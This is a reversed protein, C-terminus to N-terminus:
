SGARAARSLRESVWGRAVLANLFREYGDQLLDQEATEPEVIHGRRVMAARASCFDPHLSGAAALVCAGFASEGTVAVELPSGLVSARVRNWVASRSGGGTAVVPPDIRAGLDSLHAHCLREVFAVGELIARYREGEDAPQGLWFATANEDSFPFREGIGTLPYCVCRVPGRGAAAADLRPLEDAGFAEVLARGGVNSAGGPLWHGEPHRHSYVAGSPDQLLDDSAGKVVLTTGLVGAFRGGVDAGAAIQSACGDTMGLRVECRAPLGTAAAAREDVRGAVATPPLVDPLLDGPIGLADLVEAPWEGALVDYGSKLAHSWDTPPVGGILRAVVVDSAHWLHRAAGAAASQSCLWALKPLGFSAGIRVGLRRWRPEGAAHAAAAQAAARRDGYMLAPGAPRGSGDVAVVTGSTACVSVAAIRTRAAGLADTAARLAAAAAPWWAGADQEM